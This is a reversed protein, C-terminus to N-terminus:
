LLLGQINTVLVRAADNKASKKSLGQGSGNLEFGNPKILSMKCDFSLDAKQDFKSNLEFGFRQSLIHLQSVFDDLVDNSVKDDVFKEAKLNASAPQSIVSGVSAVEEQTDINYLKRLKAVALESVARKACKKNNSSTKLELEFADMKLYCEFSNIGLQKFTCEIKSALLQSLNNLITASPLTADKLIESLKNHLPLRRNLISEYDKNERILRSKIPEKESGNITAAAASPENEVYHEEITKDMYEAVSLFGREIAEGIAKMLISPINEPLLLLEYRKSGLEISRRGLELIAMLSAKKKATRKALDIALGYPENNLMAQVQFKNKQHVVSTKENYTLEMDLRICLNLLVQDPSLKKMHQAWLESLVNLLANNELTTM